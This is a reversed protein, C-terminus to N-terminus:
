SNSTPTRKSPAAKPPKKVKDMPKKPEKADSNDAVTRAM